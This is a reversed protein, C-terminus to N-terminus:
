IESYPLLEEFKLPLPKESKETPINEEPFWDTPVEHCTCETENLIWNNRACNQLGERDLFHAGIKVLMKKYEHFGYHIVRIDSPKVDRLSINIPFLRLHVGDSTHFRMGPVVRWLRCFWGVDFLSDTRYYTQGRWLNTEHFSYAPATGTEALNRLGGLTGKRDLIEDCDIWMIWDPNLTLALELLQQKHYLEQNICNTEGVIIHPTYRKAVEVSDDTSADDYIVIDDAWQKVNDLCRVLNGKTSENFMQIFACIKM